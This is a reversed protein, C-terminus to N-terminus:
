VAHALVVHHYPDQQDDRDRSEDIPLRVLREGMTKATRLIEHAYQKDDDGVRESQDARKLDPRFPSALLMDERNFACLYRAEVCGDQFRNM